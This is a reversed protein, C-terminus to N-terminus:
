GGADHNNLVAAKVVWDLLIVGAGNAPHQYIIPASTGDRM